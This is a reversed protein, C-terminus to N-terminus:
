FVLTATWRREDRAESDIDFAEASGLQCGDNTLLVNEVPETCGAAQAEREPPLTFAGHRIM